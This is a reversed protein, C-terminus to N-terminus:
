ASSFAPWPEQLRLHCANGEWGEKRVILESTCEPGDLILLAKEEKKEMARKRRLLCESETGPQLM